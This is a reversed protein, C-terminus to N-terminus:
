ALLQLQKCSPAVERMLPKAQGETVEVDLLTLKHAM